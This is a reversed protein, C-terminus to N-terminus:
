EKLLYELLRKAVITADEESEFTWVSLKKNPAIRYGLENPNDMDLVLHGTKIEGIKNGRFTAEVPNTRLHLVIWVPKQSKRIFVIDYGAALVIFFALAIYGGPPALIAFIIGLVIVSTAILHIQLLSANGIGQFEVEEPYQSLDRDIV